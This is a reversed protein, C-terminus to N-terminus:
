YVLGIVCTFTEFLQKKQIARRGQRSSLWISIRSDSHVHKECNNEKTWEKAAVCGHSLQFPWQDHEFLSKMCLRAAILVNKLLLHFFHERINQLGYWITYVFPNFQHWMVCYACVMGYRRFSPHFVPFIEYRNEKCEGNLDLTGICDILRYCLAACVFVCIFFFPKFLSLSFLLLLAPFFAKVM